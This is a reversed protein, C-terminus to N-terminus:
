ANSIGYLYFSSGSVWNDTSRNFSISTIASNNNFLVAHTGRTIPNAINSEVATDVSIPKGAAATYSPIYVEFNTFTNSTSTSGNANYLTAGTAVTTRNSNASSGTGYLRTVSVDTTAGGNLKMTFTTEDSANDSRVSARVVLDTYTAPISSFTVTVQNGTLVTSSILTYTAPM